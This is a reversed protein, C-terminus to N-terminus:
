REEVTGLGVTTITPADNAPRQACRASYALQEAMGIVESNGSLLVERVTGNGLIRKGVNHRERM